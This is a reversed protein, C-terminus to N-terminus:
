QGVTGTNQQVSRTRLWVELKGQTEKDVLCFQAFGMANTGSVTEPLRELGAVEQVKEATDLMGGLRFLLMLEGNEGATPITASQSKFVDTLKLSHEYAERDFGMSEKEDKILGWHEDTIRDRTLDARQESILYAAERNSYGFLRTWRAITDRSPYEDAKQADDFSLAQAMREAEAWGADMENDAM